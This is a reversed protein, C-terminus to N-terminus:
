HCASTKHIIRSYTRYHSVDLGWGKALGLNLQWIGGSTSLSGGFIGVNVNWTNAPGQLDEPNAANTFSIGGGVGLAAGGVLGGNTGTYPNPNKPSTAGWGPGGIFAGGSLYVASSGNDFSMRSISGQAAGGVVVAGAEISAAGWIGGGGSGNPQAFVCYNYNVPAPAAGTPGEYVTAYQDFPNSEGDCAQIANHQSESPDYVSALQIIGGDPGYTHSNHFVDHNYTYGTDHCQLGMALGSSDQGNVPDGHVYNYWNM